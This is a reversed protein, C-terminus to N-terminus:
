CDASIVEVTCDPSGFSDYSVYCGEPTPIQASPLEYGIFTYQNNVKTQFDGSINLFDLMSLQDAAEGMSEPCLNRWDLEVSGFGFDVIFGTQVSGGPNEASASLGNIRAKIKALNITSKFESGVSTLVAVKADTSLNIFKPAAVIALVGLIVIVIILEILTFGDHKNKIKMTTDEM